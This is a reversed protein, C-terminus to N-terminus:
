VQLRELLSSLRPGSRGGREADLELARELLSKAESTRGQDSLVRAFLELNHVSENRQILARGVELAREPDLESESLFRLYGARLADADPSRSLRREYERCVRKFARQATWPLPADPSSRDLLLLGARARLSDPRLALAERYAHRAQDLEGIGRHAQARHIWAVACRADLRLADRHWELADDFRQQRQLLLGRYTATLASRDDLHWAKDLAELAQTLEGRRLAIQGILLWARACGPDIELARELDQEADRLNGRHLGVFGRGVYAMAFSHSLQVVRDLDRLVRAEDGRDWYFNARNNLVEVLVERRRLSQLYVGRNILDAEVQFREVYYSDPHAAGHATLEVNRRLGGGDWRVFFHGPASVGFVPLRVRHALALYLTSLGLCHGRRRRIVHPLLLDALRDEDYRSNGRTPSAIMELEEFFFENLAALRAEPERPKARLRFELESAWEEVQEIVRVPELEPQDEAAILAAGFAVDLSREPQRLALEVAPSAPGPASTPVRVRETMFWRIALQRLRRLDEGLHLARFADGTAASVYSLTSV